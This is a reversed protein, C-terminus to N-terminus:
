PFKLFDLKALPDEDRLIPKLGKGLEIKYERSGGHLYFHSWTAEQDQERHQAKEGM